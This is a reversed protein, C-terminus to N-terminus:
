TLTKEGALQQVIIQAKTRTKPISKKATVM